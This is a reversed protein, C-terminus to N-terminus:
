ARAAAGLLREGLARLRLALEPPELVEFAVDLAAVYTALLHASQAGTELLCRADDLAQLRGALPPIREAMRALPAHLVIRARLRYPDSSVARWVYAGPDGGPVPRPLFRAGEAVRGAIRDARFTRWDGRGRDWALLYWRADACVLAHPEAERESRRGERDLYGFAICRADRCAGALATLREADVAPAATGLPVMAAHLGRMRARLRLPLLPDLKALARLAAEEMGSVAGVASLRLGLVVALAEDDDLLLPPLAAGAGLTYGGAAGASARVPYGLSRLREVDRRVTRPTVALREALEAGSWCRRAQLLALLRLLRASTDLM